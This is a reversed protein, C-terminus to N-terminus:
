MFNLNLVKKKIFICNNEKKKFFFTGNSHFYYKQEFSVLKNSKMLYNKILYSKMM